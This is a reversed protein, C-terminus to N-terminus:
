VQCLRNIDDGRAYSYCTELSDNNNFPPCLKKEENILYEVPSLDYLTQEMPGMSTRIRNQVVKQPDNNVLDDHLTM